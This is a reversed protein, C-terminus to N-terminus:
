EKTGVLILFESYNNSDPTNAVSHIVWGKGKLKDRVFEMAALMSAGAPFEHDIVEGEVGELTVQAYDGDLGFHLKVVYFEREM